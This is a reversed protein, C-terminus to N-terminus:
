HGTRLKGPSKPPEGRDSDPQQEDERDAGESEGLPQLAFWQHDVPDGVPSDAGSLVVGLSGDERRVAVTAAVQMTM